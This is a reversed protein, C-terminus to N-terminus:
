RQTGSGVLATEEAEHAKKTLGYEEFFSWMEGTADVSSSTPGLFWEAMPEGGPWTHGGGHITFHVVAAGDSCDTYELRTVDSAMTSEIPESGCRNREAWGATWALVDPVARNPSAWSTGGEYPVAEDATGHFSIMPM